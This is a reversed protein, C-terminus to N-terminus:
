GNGGGGGRLLGGFGALGGLFSEVGKEQREEAGMQSEDIKRPNPIQLEVESVLSAGKKRHLNVTQSALRGFAARVPWPTFGSDRYHESWDM